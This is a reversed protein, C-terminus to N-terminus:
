PEEKIQYPKITEGYNLYIVNGKLVPTIDRKDAAILQQLATFLQLTFPATPQKEPDTQPPDTM